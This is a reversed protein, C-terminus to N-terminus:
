HRSACLFSRRELKSLLGPFPAFGKLWLADADGSRLVQTLAGLGESSHIAAQILQKWRHLPESGHSDLALWRELTVEAKRLLEPDQEFRSALYCFYRTQKEDGSADHYPTM